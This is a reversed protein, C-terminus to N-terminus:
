SGLDLSSFAANIEEESVAIKWDNECFNSYDEAYMNNQDKSTDFM